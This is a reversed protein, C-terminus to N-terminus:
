PVLLRVEQWSQVRIGPRCTEAGAATECVRALEAEIARRSGQAGFVQSRVRVIGHGEVEGDVLPDGDLERIDDAVWVALYCPTPRSVEPLSALPGYAYLRWRPNNVGWPRQASIADMQMETCPSTRGCNLINTETGLDVSGGGPIARTGVPEGDLFTGRAAGALVANWDSVAMDRAALEIGADAVYLLAVSGRLNGTALRDMFLVVALGVGVASLFSTALVALILAIGRDTNM